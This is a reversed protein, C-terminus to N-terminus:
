IQRFHGHCAGGELALPASDQLGAPMSLRMTYLGPNFPNGELVALKAGAPLANPADMWKVDGPTFMGLDAPKTAQSLAIVSMAIMVLMGIVTKRMAEVGKKTPITAPLLINDRELGCNRSLPRM